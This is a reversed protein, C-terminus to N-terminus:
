QELSEGIAALQELPIDTSRAEIKVITGTKDDIVWLHAAFDFQEQHVVTGNEDIAKSSGIGAGYGVAKMRGDQFVYSKANLGSEQYGAIARQVYEEGDRADSALKLPGEVIEIVGEDPSYPHEPDCLSRTFYQMIVYVNPVYDVSQLSYGDPLAKPLLIPFPATSRVSEISEGCATNSAKGDYIRTYSHVDIVGVVDYM